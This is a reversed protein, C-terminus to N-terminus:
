KFSVIIPDLDMEIKNEKLRNLRIIRFERESVIYHAYFRIGVTRFIEEMATTTATDDNSPSSDGRPHNHCLIVCKADHSKAIEVLRRPTFNVTNVTGECVHECGIVRMKGDLLMLYTCERAETGILATFYEGIERETHEVGFEFGDTRRRVALARFLKLFMAIKESVNDELVYRDTSFIDAARIFRRMLARSNIKYKESPEVLEILESIADIQAEKHTNQATVSRASLFRNSDRIFNNLCTNQRLYVDAGFKEFGIYDNGFVIFHEALVVDMALLDSYIMKHTAIDGPTPCPPGYTHNHAIIAISANAMLAAEIFPKSRIAASEFDVDTYPEVISIVRMKNDLLAVAVRKRDREDSEEFSNFYRVFLEGARSQTDIQKSDCFADDLIIKDYAKSIGILFDAVREGVGNTTLLEERSARAIGELSSFKILLNKAIPNTDKYPIVNYLLMELLEYTDFVREGHQKFKARMRERHGGHINDSTAIQM